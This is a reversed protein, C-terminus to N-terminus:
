KHASKSPQYLPLFFNKKHRQYQALRIKGYNIYDFTSSPKTLLAQLFAWLAWYLHVPAILLGCLDCLHELEIDTPKLHDYIISSLDLSSHKLYEILFAKQSQRQPYNRDYDDKALELFYSVIDIIFYHTSCHDFDTISVTKNKSDYLFNNINTNNVCLVSPLGHTPWHTDFITRIFDIETSLEGFSTDKLQSEVQDLDLPLIPATSIGVASKLSDFFGTNNAASEKVKERIEFLRDQLKLNKKTLLDIFQKLKDIFHVGENFKLPISHFEALKGAIVRRSISLL